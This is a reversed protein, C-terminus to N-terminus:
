TIERSEFLDGLCGHFGRLTMGVQQKFVAQFRKGQKHLRGYGENYAWLHFPWGSVRLCQANNGGTNSVWEFFEVEVYFAGTFSPGNPRKKRSYHEPRPMWLGWTKSPQM